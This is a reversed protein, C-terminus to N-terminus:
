REVKIYVLSKKATEMIEEGSLNKRHADKNPLSIGLNDALNRINNEKVAFNVNQPLIGAKDAFNKGLTATVVGVVEGRENLLPGGSNGPQIAASIQCQRIDGNFGNLSSIIGDTIKPTNGIVNSLPFGVAYIRMGEKIEKANGLPLQPLEEMVAGVKLLALDSAMDIGVVVAAAKKGNSCLVEIKKADKIVHYNTVAVGNAVFFGSGSVSAAAARSAKAQYGAAIDMLRAYVSNPIVAEWEAQPFSREDVVKNEADYAKQFLVKYRSNGPQFLLLAVRRSIASDPNAFKRLSAVLVGSENARISSQSYYYRDGDQMQAYSVWAADEAHGQVPLFLFLVAVILSGIRKGWM